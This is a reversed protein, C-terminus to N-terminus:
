ESVEWVEWHDQEADYTFKPLPVAADTASPRVVLIAQGAVSQAAGSKYTLDLRSATLRVLTWHNLRLRGDDDRGDLQRLAVLGGDTSALHSSGSGGSSSALGRHGPPAPIGSCWLLGRLSSDRFHLESLSRRWDGLRLHIHVPEQDRCTGAWPQDAYPLPTRTTWWERWTPLGIVLTGDTRPMTSLMQRQPTRDSIWAVEMFKTGPPTKFRYQVYTTPLTGGNNFANVDVLGGGVVRPDDRRSWSSWGAWAAVLLALVAWGARHTFAHGLLARNTGDPEGMSRVALYEAEEPSFGQAQHEAMRELLHTRLEAAADLRDARPLGLTARRVYESITQPHRRRFLERIM